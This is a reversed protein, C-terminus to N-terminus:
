VIIMSMKVATWFSSWTDAVDSIRTGSIPNKVIHPTRARSVLRSAIRATFGSLGRLGGVCRLGQLSDGYDMWVGYDRYDTWAGYDGYDM